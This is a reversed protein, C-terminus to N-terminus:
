AVLDYGQPPIAYGNRILFTTNLEFLAVTIKKHFLHEAISYAGSVDADISVLPDSKLASQKRFVSIDLVPFDKFVCLMKKGDTIRHANPLEIIDIQQMDDVARGPLITLLQSQKALLSPICGTVSVTRAQVVQLVLILSIM